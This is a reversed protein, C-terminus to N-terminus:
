EGDKSATTVAPKKAPVSKPKAETKDPEETKPSEGPKSEFEPIAARNNVAEIVKRHNEPVPEWAPFYALATEGVEMVTDHDDKLRCLILPVPM